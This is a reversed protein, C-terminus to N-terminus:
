LRPPASSWTVESLLPRHDSCPGGEPTSPSGLSFKTSSLQGAPTGNPLKTVSLLYDIKEAPWIALPGTYTAATTKSIDTVGTGLLALMESYLKSGTPINFDGAIFVAAATGKEEQLASSFGNLFESLQRVQKIQANNENTPDLHTTIFIFPANTSKVVGTMCCAGKGSKTNSFKFQIKKFSLVDVTDKKVGVWLGGKGGLYQAITDMGDWGWSGGSVVHYEGGLEREVDKQGQGWMEQCVAIDPAQSKLYKGAAKGRKNQDKCTHNDKGVIIAPILYLNWSVIKLSM